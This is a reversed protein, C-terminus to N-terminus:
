LRRRGRRTPFRGGLTKPLTRVPQTATATAAAPQFGRGGAERPPREEPPRDPRAVFGSVTRPPVERNILKEIQTLEKGQERTVFTIAVGRQGMRATRGIRHVYAEPDMPVDYNIIHSIASVDIGRSALDTAVLVRIQHKRFREMVKDRKRQELDGHIETAEVGADHLKKALKRAAHKTNTFVIVVPPNEQELILRLARFKDYPEVSLYSQDVEEVTLRDRSVNIEVPEHMYRRALQKIEDDLTASVLITQHKGTVRGLIARIDDRFGIDLM